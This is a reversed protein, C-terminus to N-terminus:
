SSAAGAFFEQSRRALEEDSVDEIHTAIQWSHGYPDTIAGFRDGWFQDEPEMTVTAGADAARRVAADVDSVYFLMGVTTGGLTKPTDTVFNPLKDSLMVTAEGIQLAAHAVKGDPATMIGTQEAGFASKYFEIAEKADDVTLYPTVSTYEISTRKAM